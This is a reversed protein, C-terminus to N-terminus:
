LTKQLKDLMSQLFDHLSIPFDKCLPVVYEEQSTSVDQDMEVCRGIAHWEERNISGDGDQDIQSFLYIGIFMVRFEHMKNVDLDKLDELNWEGITKLDHM